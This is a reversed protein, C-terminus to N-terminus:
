PNSVAPPPSGQPSNGLGANENDDDGGYDDDGGAPSPSPQSPQSLPTTEDLIIDSKNWLVEEGMIVRM